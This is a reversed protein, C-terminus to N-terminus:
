RAGGIPAKSNNGILLAASNTSTTVATLNGSVDSHNTVDIGGINAESGNGIVLAASNLATTTSLATGSFKSGAVRIGGLAASSGNGIVLAASNTSTTVDTMTGSVDSQAAAPPIFTLPLAIALTAALTSVRRSTITKM